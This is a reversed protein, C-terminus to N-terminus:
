IFVIVMKGKICGAYIDALRTLQNEHTISQLCACEYCTQSFQRGMRDETQCADTRKVPSCWSETSEETISNDTPRECFSRISLRSEFADVSKPTEFLVPRPLGVAIPRSFDSITSVTIEDNPPQPQCTTSIRRTDSGTPSLIALRPVADLTAWPLESPSRCNKLM